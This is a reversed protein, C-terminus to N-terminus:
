LLRISVEESCVQVDDFYDSSILLFVFIILFVEKSPRIAAAAKPHENAIVCGAVAASPHPGL